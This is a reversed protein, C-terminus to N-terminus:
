AALACAVAVQASWAATRVWNGLVLRRHARADWRAQLRGHMPGLWAVTAGFAVLVLALNAAALAGPLLLAALPLQALMPAAVVLTIRRRHGAEYVPWASAGVEAFLPYHVVQVIWILGALYAALVLNALALGM